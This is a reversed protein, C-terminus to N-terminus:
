TTVHYIAWQGNNEDVGIRIDSPLPIGQARLQSQLENAIYKALLEATTNAMPLIVCDERPFVWRRDGCTATVERDDQQVQITPHSDPLLVHHDLSATIEQMIDRLKIFDIVYQNEDLRGHVEAWTRYNHGHLRECVGGGFTIFHAASFILSDKQLRVSYSESMPHGM